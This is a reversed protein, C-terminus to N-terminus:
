STDMSLRAKIYNVFELYENENKFYLIRLLVEYLTKDYLYHAENLNKGKSQLITLVINWQQVEDTFCVLPLHECITVIRKISNRRPQTDKNFRLTALYENKEPLMHWM